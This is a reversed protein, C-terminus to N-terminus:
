TRPGSTRASSAPAINTPGAPRRRGTRPMISWATPINPALTKMFDRRRVKLVRDVFSKLEGPAALALHDKFIVRDFCSLVTVILSTFKTIFPSLTRM